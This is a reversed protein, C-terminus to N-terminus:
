QVESSMAPVDMVSLRSSGSISPNSAAGASIAIRVKQRGPWGPWRLPGRRLPSPPAAASCLSRCEAPVFGTGTLNQLTEALGSDALRGIVHPTNVCDVRDM